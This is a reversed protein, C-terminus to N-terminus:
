GRFRDVTPLKTLFRHGGRALRYGGHGVAKGTGDAVTETETESVVATVQRGALLYATTLGAPGAGPGAIGGGDSTGNSGPRM